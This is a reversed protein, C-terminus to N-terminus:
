PEEPDVAACSACYAMHGAVSLAYGTALWSGGGSRNAIRRSVRELLGREVLRAAARSDSSIVDIGHGRLAADVQAAFAKELLDRERRTLGTGTM